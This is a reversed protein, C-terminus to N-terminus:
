EDDKKKSEITTVEWEAAKKKKNSKFLSFEPDEKYVFIFYIIFLVATITVCIDAFNFIPFDIVKFYIFDVVYKTDIRDILNGVAGAWLASFLYGLFINGTYTKMRFAAPNEFGKDVYKRLKKNLVIWVILVLILVIATIIYFFVQKNQFVGFAAGHNELYRFEIIDKIVPVAPQDKLDRVAIYKTFRDAALLIFFMIVQIVMNVTIRKKSVKEM